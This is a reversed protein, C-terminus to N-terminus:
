SRMRAPVGAYVGPRVCDSVVAAGAGITCDGCIQVSQRVTAGAGILTRRGVRVGGSLVAGPAVHVFDEIACDHEVTSNTNIIVGCGVQCGPNIVAGDLIVTGRGLTVGENVIANPSLVVPLSLGLREILCFLDERKRDAAVSGVGIAACCSSSRRALDELAGDDGLYGVGLLVGRDALDTYGLIRYMGQKKLTSIVVRAHGGGGIVVIEKM